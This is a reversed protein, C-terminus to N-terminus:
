FDYAEKLPYTKLQREFIAISPSKRVSLALNNWLKPAATSTLARDGYTKLKALPVTLLEQGSSPLSWSFRRHSLLSALRVLSIDIVHETINICLIARVRCVNKTRWWANGNFAENSDLKTGDSRLDAFTVASTLFLDLCIASFELGIKNVQIRPLTICCTTLDSM